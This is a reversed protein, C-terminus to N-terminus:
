GRRYTGTLRAEGLMHGPLAARLASATPAGALGLPERLAWLQFVYRHVGRPPCPGGWGTRGFDNRGERGAAGARSAGEALGSSSGPIDVAVWHVFGHADPDTVLLAFAGTGAPAGQWALPPSQDLGDCTFVTPIAGGDRFAVSTLTFTSPTASSITM